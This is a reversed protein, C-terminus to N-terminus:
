AEMGPACLARHNGVGAMIRQLKRRYGTICAVANSQACREQWDRQNWGVFGRAPRLRSSLGKVPWGTSAKKMIIRDKLTTGPEGNAAVGGLSLL